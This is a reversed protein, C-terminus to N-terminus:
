CSEDSEIILLSIDGIDQYLKHLQLKEELYKLFEYIIKLQGYFVQIPSWNTQSVTFDEKLLPDYGHTFNVGSRDSM